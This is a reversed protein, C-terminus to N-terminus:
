LRPLMRNLHRKSLINMTCRAVIEDTAAVGIVDSMKKETEADNNLHGWVVSISSGPFPKAIQQIIGAIERGKEEMRDEYSKKTDGAGSDEVDKEVADEEDEEEYEDFSFLIGQAAFNKPSNINRPKLSGDKNHLEVIQIFGPIKEYKELDKKDFYMGIGTKTEVRVVGFNGEVIDLTVIFLQGKKSQGSSQPRTPSKLKFSRKVSVAPNTKGNNNNSKVM